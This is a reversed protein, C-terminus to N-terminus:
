SSAGRFTRAAAARRGGRRLGGGVACRRTDLRFCPPTTCDCLRFLLHIFHTSPLLSRTPTRPTTISLPPPSSPSRLPPPSSPSRHHPLATTISLPSSPSRHHHLAPPPLSLQAYNTQCHRGLHGVATRPPSGRWHRWSTRRRHSGVTRLRPWCGARWANSRKLPMSSRARGAPVRLASSHRAPLFLVTAATQPRSCARCLAGDSKRM